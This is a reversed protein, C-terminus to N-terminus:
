GVGLDTNNVLVEVDSAHQLTPYIEDIFWKVLEDDRRVPTTNNCFLNVSCYEFHSRAIAIDNVIRQKNEGLTCCLLCVGQFHHSLEAPGIEDPIGKKWQNRLQTDFTEVGCRFKVTAPAFQLAFERLQHRYMYHSEFWLTHIHKQRVIQKIYAITDSDLETASGSNIIDLVGYIGQVHDLVSKNIAFSNDSIDNHYDCFTCKRWRCGQGQLLLFERPFKTDIIHYREM